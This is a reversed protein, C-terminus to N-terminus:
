AKPLPARVFCEGSCVRAMGKPNPKGCVICNAHYEVNPIPVSLNQRKRLKAKLEANAKRIRDEKAEEQFRALDADTM